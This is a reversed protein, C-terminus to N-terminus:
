LPRWPNVNGAALGVGAVGAVKFGRPSGRPKEKGASRCPVAPRRRARGQYGGLKFCEPAHAGGQLGTPAPLWKGKSREAATNVKMLM